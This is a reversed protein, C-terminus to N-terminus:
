ITRVMSWCSQTASSANSVIQPPLLGAFSVLAGIRWRGSGVADLAVIAGQSVGVFAIRDHANV